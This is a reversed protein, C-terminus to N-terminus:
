TESDLSNHLRRAEEALRSSGKRAAVDALGAIEGSAGTREAANAAVTLFEGLGARARNGPSPLLLPLATALVPWLDVGSEQAQQLVGTARSLTVLDNRVLTALVQGFDAELQDRAALTVLADLAEARREPKKHDMGLAIAGALAGEVPGEDHALAALVGADLSRSQLSPLLQVAVLERHSPMISPFWATNYAYHRNEDPTWLRAVEDPLGPPMTVAAVLKEVQWHEHDRVQISCTVGPDFPWRRLWEAVQKGAPTGLGEARVAAAPDVSRPLRLLAQLLDLPLPETQGLLELRDLLTDVDVHGTPLTPTALLVPQSGGSQLLDVVERLRRVVFRHLTTWYSRYDSEAGQRVDPSAIVAAARSVILSAYYDDGPAYLQAPRLAAALGERDRHAFTVLAALARECRMPDSDYRLTSLEDVLEDVSAIAPPLPQLPTAVPRGAAVPEHVAEIPGFAAALRERAEAPLSAAAQRIAERGDSSAHRVALRIARDRLAPKDHTLVTALATLVAEREGMWRLALEVLRNEPRFALAEVAEVYLERDLDPVRRLEEAALTALSPEATPLLRVFDRAPIEGPEAGLRRWLSVFPSVDGGVLFRGHCGSLLDARKVRGDAALEALWETAPGGVHARDSWSLAAAVGEAEFLRSVMLDLLPLEPERDDMWRRRALRWAWGAVLADNVPPEIGTEVVLAVALDWGPLPRFTRNGRPLRLREVLRAALDARWAASRWSLSAVIRAADAGADDVERLERRNLWAAVEAAGSLCAAGALRLDDAMARVRWRSEWGGALQERLYGPLQAAVARRGLENLGNVVEALGVVDGAEVCERVERWPNM